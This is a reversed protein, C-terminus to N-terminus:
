YRAPEWVFVVVSHKLTSGAVIAIVLVALGAPGTLAPPSIPNSMLTSFVPVWVVRPTWTVSGSGAPMVQVASAGVPETVPREQEMVPPASSQVLGLRAASAEKVTWTCPMVSAASQPVTFLVAATAVELSPESVEFADTTTIQGSMLTVLLGSPAPTLAPSVAVNEILTSFMPLPVAVPTVAESLRGAPWCQVSLSASQEILPASPLWTRVQM